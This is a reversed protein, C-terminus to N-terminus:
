AGSVIKINSLQAVEHVKLFGGGAYVDIPGLTVTLDRPSCRDGFFLFALGTGGLRPRWSVGNLMPLSQHLFHAWTRTNPYESPPTHINLKRKDLPNALM